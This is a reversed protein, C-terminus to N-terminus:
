SFTKKLYEIKGNAGIVNWAELCPGFANKEINLRDQIRLHHELILAEDNRYETKQCTIISKSFLDNASNVEGLLGAKIAEILLVKHEFNYACDNQWASMKEIAASIKEMYENRIEKSGEAAAYLLAICRFFEFEIEGIQHAIAPYIPPVKEGWEIAKEWEGFHTHIKMKAIFYFGIQNTFDTKLIFDIEREENFEEDGLSLISHTEGKLMKAVQMELRIHFAANIVRNNNEVHFTRGTEIVEDLHRGAHNLFVVYGAQNFCTFMLDGNAKGAEIGRRSLAFTESIPVVWHNIFWCHVHMIRSALNSRKQKKDIEIALQSWKYATQSDGTMGRHVIAYMSYVDATAIGNGNELTIKLGLISLLVFLDLRGGIYTYPGIHTLMIILREIEPDDLKPLEALSEITKGKMLEALLGMTEGIRVGVTEPDPNIGINFLNLGQLGFDIAEKTFGAAVLKNSEMELYESAKLHNSAMQWHHALRNYFPHLKEKFNQEYWLATQTHLQRRQDDLTMEYAVEAVTSSNFLFGVNNDVVTDNLFGSVKAEELYLDVSKRENEIPYINRIIQQGFKNGIVSGVKLSLQSGQNLHDLRRRLAGRVTEPLSLNNLVANDIFEIQNNISTLLGQDEMSGVFELSFFPNGKAKSAVLQYVEESVNQAGIKTCILKKLSSGELENLHINQRNKLRSIDFHSISSINQTSIIMFYNSMNHNISSILRWSNDDIWQAEDITFILTKDLSSKTLVDFLFDHIANVKQTSTLGAISPAIEFETQLIINFLSAQDSYQAKIQKLSENKDIESEIDVLNLISYFVNQWIFFPTNRELYEGSLSYSEVNGVLNQSNFDNILQTKGIGSAGEIIVINGNGDIAKNCCKTLTKLENERGISIEIPLESFKVDTNLPEFVPIKEERGKINKMELPTYDILKHTANYTMEDCLVGNGALGALRSSLNVVDGIITYQRLVNNGLIGCFAVGTCVGISNNINNSSLLENLEIALRVARTPNDNHASPPPGFCILMNTQKEDMWVLNLLGDYKVILPVALNTVTKMETINSSTGESSPFRVFLSTVPRSEAVWKLREESIPFTLTRPAFRKIRSISQDTLSHDSNISVNINDPFAMLISTEYEVAKSVYSDDLKSLAKNSILLKNPARNKSCQKLENFVEGYYSLMQNGRIADLAALAWNGYAVTTHLSLLNGLDDTTFRNKVIENACYSANEVSERAKDSTCPWASMIGDGAFFLPQGGNKTITNLIFDYHETLISNIQEVGSLNDQMLRSCLPSFSFIDVWLLTANNHIIPDGIKWNPNNSIQRRLVEPVFSMEIQISADQNSM